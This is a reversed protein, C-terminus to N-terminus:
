SHQTNTSIINNLIRHSSIVGLEAIQYFAFPLISVVVFPFYDSSLMDCNAPWFNLWRHAIPTWHHTAGGIHEDRDPQPSSSCSSLHIQIQTNTNQTNTIWSGPTPQVSLEVILEPGPPSVTWRSCQSVQNQFISISFIIIIRM